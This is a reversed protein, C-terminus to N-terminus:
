WTEDCIVCLLGIVFVYWPAGSAISLALGFLATM